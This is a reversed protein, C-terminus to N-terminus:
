ANETFMTAVAAVVVLRVPGETRFWLLRPLSLSRRANVSLGVPWPEDGPELITAEVKDLPEADPGPFRSISFYYLREFSLYYDPKQPGWHLGVDLTDGEAGRVLALRDIFYGGFHPAAACVNEINTM